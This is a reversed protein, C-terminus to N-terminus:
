MENKPMKIKIQLEKLLSEQKSTFEVLIKKESGSVKDKLDVYHCSRFPEYLNKSNLYDVGDIEKRREALDKNLFYALVCISYVARVHEDLNVYFPRIKLFSKIHKFVDEIKTKDRYAKIIKEGPFLFEKDPSETHSSIFVCLGDLTESAAIKNLKREVTVRFSKVSVTKGRKNKRNIEIEKLVPDNFYKKIKLRRLEKIIVQKTKDHDRSRTADGLEKNKKVLFDEFVGTKGNRCEREEKFLVPNFGLVYRQKGIVGLDKFYLSEDYCVFKRELFRDKYNDLTINSFISLDIGEINPIQDKDLASIYKFGRESIYNLNDDSVIGRDFVFTISELGFRERCADVNGVLTKVEATNGPYVDWKFPYGKDNVLLGLLVQKNHPKDDKSKGYSSLNCKMGVFYSTSLDYNIFDYSTRDKRYTIQFLHNELQEQSQEIKDLEYYIKDDNLNDLSHGIVESLATKEAWQPISYHSCPAVCKNITLIKAILPTSLDSNTVHNGFARSLKWEEWLANVIALDLYPKSKQVVINELTTIVQSPKSISKCIFKIQDRQADTLKGIPWIIRKKVKKGERYSEAIFYYKYVKDKYRSTKYGLHM